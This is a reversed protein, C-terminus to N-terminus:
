KLEVRVADGIKVWEGRTFEQLQASMHTTTGATIGSDVLALVTPLGGFAVPGGNSLDVPLSLIPQLIDIRWILNDPDANNKVFAGYSIVVRYTGVVKAKNKTTVNGSPTSTAKPPKSYGAGVDALTQGFSVSGVLLSAVLVTLLKGIQM